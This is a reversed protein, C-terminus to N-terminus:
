QAQMERAVCPEVSGLCCHFLWSQWSKALMMIEIRKLEWVVVM